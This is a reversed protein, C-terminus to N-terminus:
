KPLSFVQAPGDFTYTTFFVTDCGVALGKPQEQGSALTEVVSGDLRARMVQADDDTWYAYDGDIALTWGTGQGGGISQTPGGDKPASFVSSTDTFYVRDGVIKLDVPYILGTVVDEITPSDAFDAHAVRRIRGMLTDTWYVHEADVAVGSPYDDTVFGAPAADTATKPVRWIASLVGATEDPENVWYIFQPHLAIRGWRVVHQGNIAHRQASSFPVDPDVSWIESGNYQTWYIRQDDTALNTIYCHYPEGPDVCELGDSDAVLNGETSGDVERLQAGSGTAYFPRTGDFLIVAVAESPSRAVSVPAPRPEPYTPACAGTGGVPGDVKTFDDFCATLLLLAPFFRLM